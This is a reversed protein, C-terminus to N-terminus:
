WQIGAGISVGGDGRTNTSGSFKYIWRGGETVGSIGVAMGSEGNFTGAAIAAMNRGAEYPQPLGAIAMASAVGAAARDDIRRLDGHVTSFREDTYARSWDLTDAMGKNLQDLNVADTGATGAAVNRVRVPAAAVGPAGLTVSTYDTGGDAATDYRLTGQESARLQRVNVADTAAAGDAVHVIQREAGASGVSVSDSRDAVSGAGLAVSRDASATAGDGLAVSGAGAASAEPGVAVGEGGAATAGSKTSNVALYPQSYAGPGDGEQRGPGELGILRHINVLSGDVAAFAAAVDGYTAMTVKGDAGIHSIRFAPATWGAAGPAAGGGFFAALALYGEHLQGGNVAERSGAAIAGDALNALLTAGSADGLTVHRYDPQGAADADYKVSFLDVGNALNIAGQLQAVNVADTSASGAAVHTIQRERGASGVAVEGISDQPAALGFAAYGNRGGRTASSNYGLAVSNAKDSTAGAGILTQANASGSASDGIVVSHGLRADYDATPVGTPNAPDNGGAGPFAQAASQQPLQHRAGTGIVVEKSGNAYAGDGILVQYNQAANVAWCDVNVLGLVSACREAWAPASGPLLLDLLGGPDGNNIGTIYSDSTVGGILTLYANGGTAANGLADLVTGVPTLQVVPVGAVDLVSYGQQFNVARVALDGNRIYGDGGFLASPGVSDLLQGMSGTLGGTGIILGPSGVAAPVAPAAAPALGPLVGGAIGGLVDGLGGLAGTAIGGLGGVGHTSGVLESVTGATGGVAHGAVTTVTDKVSVVAGQLDGGLVEGVIDELGSALGGTAGAVTDALTKSGTLSGILGAAGTGAHEVTQALAGTAGNAVDGLGAHGAAGAVVGGVTGAVAELTGDLATRAGEAGQGPGGTVIGVVNTGLIKGVQGPLAAVGTDLEVDLEAVARAVAVDLDVDLAVGAGIPGLGAAVQTSVELGRDLAVGADAEAFVFGGAALAANARAGYMGGHDHHTVVTVEAQIGNATAADRSSPATVRQLPVGLARRVTSDLAGGVKRAIADKARGAAADSGLLALPPLPASAAAVTSAEQRSARPAATGPSTRSLTAVPLSAASRSAGASDVYKGVLVALDEMRRDESAQAAGAGLALVLAMCLASVPAALPRDAARVAVPDRAQVSGPAAVYAGLTSSWTM